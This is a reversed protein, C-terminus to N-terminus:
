KAYKLFIQEKTQMLEKIILWKGDPQKQVVMSSKLKYDSLSPKRFSDIKYGEPVKTININSYYNKYNKLKAIKASLKMQKRYDNISFKVDVTQGNPKVVQRIIKADDSYMHPVENSYSNTASVFSNFFKLADQQDDALAGLGSLVLTLLLLTKLMVKKM